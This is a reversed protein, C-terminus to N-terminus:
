EWIPIGANFEKVNHKVVEKMDGTSLFVKRQRSASNGREVINRLCIEYKQYGFMSIYPQLRDLWLMINESLGSTNLNTFSILQADLGFRIARWKNERLIWLDPMPTHLTLDSETRNDEFWLALLHIWAVISEIELMTAPADCIRIELTGYGSSPRLDWWIDKMSEISGTKLLKLYLDNFEKWNNVLIPMGSTPHSEYTTPRSAALGTDSGRWFPSSASLAILHPIFQMFFNNFMICSDGDKMGLHVHLGYVAMRKILWQNKDLLEQYRSSSSLIRNNYDALPHTGTSALAIGMMGSLDRVKQLTDELDLHVSEVDNCVDTILELTSRFMEKTLHFNDLQALIQPARPTLNLTDQDLLQIEMEVGLTLIKENEKFELEM